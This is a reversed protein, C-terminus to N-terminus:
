RSVIPETFCYGLGHATKIPAQTDQRATKVRLRRVLADLGRGTYEKQDPYLRRILQDRSVPEGPKESLLQLFQLELATLRIQEGAPSRLLWGSSDIQWRCAKDEAPTSAIPRRQRLREAIRAVASLLIRGDFPKTLYLDCGSEYGQLCDDNTAHATLIIIGMDTDARTQEALRLGSQDPLGIDIIALDFPANEKLERNYAQGSGVGSVTYGALSLREVLSERVDDDDEVVIIRISAPKM